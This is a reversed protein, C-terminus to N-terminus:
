KNGLRARIEYEFTKAGYTAKFSLGGTQRLLALFDGVQKRAEAAPVAQDLIAQTILDEQQLRLLEAAGAGYFRTEASPARETPKEAQLMPILERALELTSCLLMQNGVRAFCPSYGFRLDNVDDPVPRDEAFRYGVLPVDGVKEETRKLRIQTALAIVGGRALTEVGEAFDDPNRMEIVVALAQVPTKPQKTYGGKPQNVVVARHYPGAATLLKSLQIRNFPFQQLGKDAQELGKVTDTGFLKTRENWFAATDFHFSSSALVGKPELLPRSSPQGDPGVHLFRDPGMGARGVPMRMTIAFDDQDRTLAMAFYPARSLTDVYGGFLTTLLPERPTKYFEATAPNKRVTTMDLWLWALPNAPLLKQADSVGLKDLLSKTAKGNVLALSADLAEKKNAFLLTAGARVAHLDGITASEIGQYSGKVLRPAGDSRALEQEAIQLLLAFFRETVKADTGQIVLLAPAPDMGIRSALVAGGGAVKDLIEGAKMGLEREAYAVLQLFRRVRTGEFLERVPALEQAQMLLAPTTYADLLLRPSPLAFVLDASDPVVALPSRPTAAPTLSALLCLGILSLLSRRM